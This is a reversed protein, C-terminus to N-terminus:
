SVPFPSVAARVVSPLFLTPVLGSPLSAPLLGLAYPLIDALADQTQEESDTSRTAGTTGIV